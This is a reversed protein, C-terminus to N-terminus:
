DDPYAFRENSVNAEGQYVEDESDLSGDSCDFDGRLAAPEPVNFGDVQDDLSVSDLVAEQAISSCFHITLWKCSAKLMKGDNSSCVSNASLQTMPGLFMTEVNGEVVIVVLVLAHCLQRPLVELHVSSVSLSDILNIGRNGPSSLIAVPSVNFTCNSPHQLRLNVIVGCFNSKVPDIHFVASDYLALVSGCICLQTLCSQNCIGHSVDVDEAVHHLIISCSGAQLFGLRLFDFICTCVDVDLFLSSLVDVLDSGKLCVADVPAPEFCCNPEHTAHGSENAIKLFPFLPEFGDVAVAVFTHM